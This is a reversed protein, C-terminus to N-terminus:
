PDGHQLCPPFEEENRTPRSPSGRWILESCPAAAICALTFDLRYSPLEGLEDVCEAWDFCCNPDDEPNAVPIAGCEVLRWCADEVSEIVPPACGLTGGGAEDCPGRVGPDSADGGCSGIAFAGLVALLGLVLPDEAPKAASREAESM